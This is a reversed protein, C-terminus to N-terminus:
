SFDVFKNELRDYVRLNAAKYRDWGEGDKLLRHEDHTVMCAMANYLISKIKDPSALLDGIVKKKPRVHEFNVKISKGARDAEYVFETIFRTDKKNRGAAETAKWVITDLLQKKHKELIEKSGVVLSAAHIFSQMAEHYNGPEKWAIRYLEKM